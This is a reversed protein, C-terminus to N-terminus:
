GAAEVLHARMKELGLRMRGKVTGVPADLMGAIESHSFGGYYALKVVTAQDEPLASLAGLLERTSEHTAAATETRESAAVDALVDEPNRRADVRQVAERRIFDISRNRVIALLWSRVSSRDPDYRAGTKWLSVFAEQTVEEARNRDGVIRFALSYAATAHREYILKFATMDHEALLPMLEEDASRNLTRARM